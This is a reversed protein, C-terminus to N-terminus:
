TKLPIEGIVWFINLELSELYTTTIQAHGGLCVSSNAPLKRGTETGIKRTLCHSWHKNVAAAGLTTQADMGIAVQDIALMDVVYM